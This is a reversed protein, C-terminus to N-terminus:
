PLEATAWCKVPDWPAAHGIAEISYILFQISYNQTFIALIYFNVFQQSYNQTFTALALIYKYLKVFQLSYNQSFNALSLLYRYFNAFKYKYHFNQTFVQGFQCIIKLLLPWLCIYKYFYAFNLKQLYEYYYYQGPHVYNLRDLCMGRLKMRTFSGLVTVLARQGKVNYNSMAAVGRYIYQLEAKLYQNTNGRTTTSCQTVLKQSGGLVRGQKCINTHKPLETRYPHSM